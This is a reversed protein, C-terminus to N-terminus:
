SRKKARAILLGGGVIIGLGLFGSLILIWGPVWSLLGGGQPKPEVGETPESPSISPQVPSPGSTPSLTPTLSAPSTASPESTTTPDKTSTTLSVYNRTIGSLLSDVVSYEVGIAYTRETASTLGADSYERTAKDLIALETLVGGENLYVLYRTVESSYSGADTDPCSTWTLRISDPTTEASLGRIPTLQREFYCESTSLSELLIRADGGSSVDLFNFEFDLEHWSKGSLSNPLRSLRNLGAYLTKLHPSGVLEDPLSTLRNQQVFLAELNGSGYSAPVERIENGNVYLVKLEPLTAIFGPLDTLRNRSVVLVVLNPVLGIGAPIAGFDCDDLYLQQLGVMASMNPLATLPNESANLVHIQRCYQVGELNAIDRGTLNLSGTLAYLDGRRLPETMPIGCRTHLAANLNADPIDVVLLPDIPFITILPPHITIIPIWGLQAATGDSSESVVGTLPVAWPISVVLV